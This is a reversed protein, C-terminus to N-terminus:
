REKLRTKKDVYRVLNELTFFGSKQLDLNSVKIRYKKELFNILEVIGFSDLLGSKLLNQNKKQFKVLHTEVLYKQIELKADKKSM